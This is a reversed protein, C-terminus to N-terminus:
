WEAPLGNVYHWLRSSEGTGTESYYWRWAERLHLNGTDTVGDIANFQTSTTGGYYVNMTANRFADNGVETVSEPIVIIDMECSYFANNGITRVREPLIVTDIESNRFLAESLVNIRSPLTFTDLVLYSLAEAGLTNVTDPLTLSTVAAGKFAAAGVATLRDPLVISTLKSGYFAYDGIATVTDPLTLTGTIGPAAAEVSTINGGTTGYIVGNQAILGAINGEEVTIQTLNEPVARMAYSVGPVSNGVFVEGTISLLTSPLSVSVIDAGALSGANLKEIGESIVVSELGPKNALTYAAVETVPRNNYTGPLVIETQGMLDAGSKWNVIYGDRDSNLTFTFFYDNYSTGCVSCEGDEWSHAAKATGLSSVSNECAEDSFNLGCDPCEWYEITGYDRCTGAVAAHHIKNKHNLKTAALDAESLTKTANEDAFYKGCLDCEWYETQGDRTCTVTAAHYTLEHECTQTQPNEQSNNPDSGNNCASFVPTFACILALIFLVPKKM